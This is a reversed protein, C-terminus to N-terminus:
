WEKIPDGSPRRTIEAFYGCWWSGGKPGPLHRLPSLYKPYLIVHWFFGVAFELGWISAFTGLYSPQSYPLVRPFYTVLAYSSLAALGTITKFSIDM